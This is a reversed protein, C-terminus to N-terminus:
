YFDQYFALYGQLNGGALLKVFNDETIIFYTHSHLHNVTRKAKKFVNLYKKADTENKFSSVRVIDVDTGIITEKATLRDSSFFENNFNSLDKKLNNVKEGSKAVVVFFMKGSKYEFESKSGSGFNAEIAASYGNNIINIMTSARTAEKSGPYAAIIAEFFPISEKKEEMMAAESLANLLMYGSRYANNPDNQLISRTRSRVTSYYGTRFREIQKEYDDLDLREREKKKIFFEPDSIYAAYESEPFKSLIYEAYFARQNPNVGDYLRYLEFASLLIHKDEVRYTLVKEFQTIALQKELLEENYIRGSRYLAELLIQHAIEIQENNKPIGEKLSEISFKDKPEPKTDTVVASSDTEEGSNNQTFSAPLKNIRRWDDELDRLGWLRKFSEYGDAKNRQNYFYWRSGGGANANATQSAQQLAALEAARKAEQELRIKEDKELKSKVNQLFAEQDAPSMQAIRILSDQLNATEIADVLDKLKKAKRDILDRNKFNDPAVRVCSDYYKQARIYDKDSIKMEAMRLYSKAKQKNNSVSYFVSKSYLGMAKEKDKDTEAVNGLAYYIQDRYDLNKSENAMKNLEALVKDRDAGSSAVARQLRASFHLVFPAKKKLTASYNEFAPEQKGSVISLQALIFFMRAAEEKNKCEDVVITMFKEADEYKKRQIAMDAKLKNIEYNFNAPAKVVQKKERKNAPQKKSKKKKKKKNKSNSKSDSTDDSDSKNANEAIEAERSIERIISDAKTLEGKRFACKAMWLKATYKSPSNPFLKEVFKFAEDAGEYDGKYYKAYGVMLWAESMYKNYEVKKNSNAFSPMSHKAIATTCKVVITDMLPMLAVQNEDLPIVEVPLIEDYDDVHVKVYSRLTQNKLENANYLSNFRTTTQHFVRNPKANKETTCSLSNFILLILGIFVAQNFKSMTIIEVSKLSQADFITNKGNLNKQKSSM